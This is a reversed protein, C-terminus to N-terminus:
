GATKGWFGALRKVWKWECAKKKWTNKLKSAGLDKELMLPLPYDLMEVVTARYYDPKASLLLSATELNSYGAGIFVLERPNQAAFYSHINVADAASRLTFVGNLDSGEVPPVVQRAGMGLILKDFPLTTGDALTVTKQAPDAQVVKGIVVKIGVDEFMRDPNTISDVTAVGAVV